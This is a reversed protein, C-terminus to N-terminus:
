KANIFAFEFAHIPSLILKNGEKKGTCNIFEIDDYERDLEVTPADIKDAFFNWLGVAMAKESQKCQVYLSPNGYIYAPLKEGSLWPVNEAIQRGREYHKLIASTNRRSNVNFVLFRNGASNEYRYSMPVNGSATKTDSLVEANKSVIIDYSSAGIISIYNDNNLFHEETGAVISGSDDILAGNISVIGVDIGKSALIEAAAIDLILGNKFANEPLARANEDFVIGCVGDGEYVSPISNCALTRAAQSFFMKEIDVTDNIKTPTEIDSVKKM